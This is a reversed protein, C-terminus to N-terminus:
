GIFAKMISKAINISIENLEDCYVYENASDEVIYRSVLTAEAESLSFPHKILIDKITKMNIYEDEAGKSPM